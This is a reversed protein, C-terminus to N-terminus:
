ATICCVPKKKQRDRESERVTKKEKKKGRIGERTHKLTFKEM